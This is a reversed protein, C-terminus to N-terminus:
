YLKLCKFHLNMFKKVCIGLSHNVFHKSFGSFHIQQTQVGHFKKIICLELQRFLASDFCLMYRSVGRLLYISETRFLVKKLFRGSVFQVLVDM